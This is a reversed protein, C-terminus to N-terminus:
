NVRIEGCNSAYCTSVKRMNSLVSSVKSINSLKSVSSMKM